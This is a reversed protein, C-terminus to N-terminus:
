HGIKNFVTKLLLPFIDQYKSAIFMCAVGTTHLDHLELIQKNKNCQDFFRDMINVALFFTQDECKFATLVEVMWDIMKARYVGNIKHNALHDQQIQSKQMLEKMYGDIEKGYDSILNM